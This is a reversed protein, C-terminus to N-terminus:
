QSSSRAGPQTLRSARLQPAPAPVTMHRASPRTRHDRGEGKGAEAPPAVCVRCRCGVWRGAREDGPATATATTTTTTAAAGSKPASHPPRGHFSGRAAVMPGQGAALRRGPVPFTTPSHRFPPAVLVGRTFAHVLIHRLCRGVRIDTSGRCVCTKRRALNASCFQCLMLLVSLLPVLSGLQASSLRGIFKRRCSSASSSRRRQGFGEPAGLPPM